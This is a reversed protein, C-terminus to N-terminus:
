LYSQPVSLSSSSSSSSSSSTTSPPTSSLSASLAAASTYHPVQCLFDHVLGFTIMRRIDISHSAPDYETMYVRLSIGPVLRSYLLFITQV